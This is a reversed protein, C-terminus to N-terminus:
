NICLNCNDMVKNFYLNVVFTNVGDVYMNSINKLLVNGVVCTQIVVLYSCSFVRKTSM